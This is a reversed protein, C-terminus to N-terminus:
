GFFWNDIHDHPVRRLAVDDAANFAHVRQVGLQRLGAVSSPRLVILSGLSLVLSAKTCFFSQRM